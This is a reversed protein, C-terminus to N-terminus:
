AMSSSAKCAQVATVAAGVGWGRGPTWLRSGTVFLAFLLSTGVFLGDTDTATDSLM